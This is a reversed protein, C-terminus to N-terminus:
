ILNITTTCKIYNFALIPKCYHDTFMEMQRNGPVVEYRLEEFHEAIIDLVSTSFAPGLHLSRERDYIYFRRLRVMKEGEAETIIWGVPRGGTKKMLAFSTKEDYKWGTEGIGPSIYDPDTRGEQEEKLIQQKWYEDVDKWPLLFCGQKEVFWPCYWRFKRLHDFDKTHLGLQRLHEVKEIKCGSVNRFLKQSLTDELKDIYETIIIKEAHYKEKLIHVAENLLFLVCSSKKCKETVQVYHMFFYLPKERNLIGYVIGGAQGNQFLAAVFPRFSTDHFLFEPLQGPGHIQEFLAQTEKEGFIERVEMNM